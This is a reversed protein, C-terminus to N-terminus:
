DSTASAVNALFSTGLRDIWGDTLFRRCLIPMVRDPTLKKM